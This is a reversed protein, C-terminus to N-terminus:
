VQQPDARVKVIVAAKKTINQMFLFEVLIKLACRKRCSCISRYSLLTLQTQRPKLKQAMPVISKNVYFYNTSLIKLM